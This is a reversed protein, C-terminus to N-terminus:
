HFPPVTFHSNVESVGASLAALADPHSMTVTLDDLKDYQKDGYAEAVAMQLVMAQVSVKAGPVAIRDKPSFDRISKIAPNRTNLYMPISTMACVGRIAGNTRSWLLILSTPGGVAFDLNGSLLADNVASVAGLVPWSVKVDGLGAAKAHKEILRSDEMIMLPLFSIGFGRTVRVESTEAQIALPSLLVAALVSTFFKRASM